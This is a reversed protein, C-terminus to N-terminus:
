GVDRELVAFWGRDVTGPLAIGIPSSSWEAEKEPMCQYATRHPIRLSLRSPRDSAVM